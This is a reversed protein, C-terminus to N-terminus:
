YRKAIIESAKRAAGITAELVQDLNKEIRERPGAINLAAICRGTSNMIPAAVGAAGEIHGELNITYGAQASQEIAVRVADPQQGDAGNLQALYANLDDAGLGALLTLGSATQHPIRTRSIDRDYRIERNALVKAIYRLRMDATLIGICGTELTAGVAEELVPRIMRVVTGWAPAGQSPEGPLRQLAYRQDADHRAYGRQVLLRLLLLTTSKPWDLDRVADSLAIPESQQAMWEILELIRSSGRKSINEQDTM